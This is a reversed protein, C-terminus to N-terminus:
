FKPSTDRKLFFVMLNTYGCSNCKVKNQRMDEVSIDINTECQKCLKSKGVKIKATDILFEFVSGEKFIQILRM